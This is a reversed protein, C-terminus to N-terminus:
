WFGSEHLPLFHVAYCGSGLPTSHAQGFVTLNIAIMELLACMCRMPATGCCSLIRYEAVNLDEDCSRRIAGVGNNPTAVNHEAREGRPEGSRPGKRRRAVM